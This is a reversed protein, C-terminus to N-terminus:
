QMVEFDISQAVTRYKDKALKDTVVIQMAYEGPEMKSGLQLQGGTMVSKLDPSQQPEIPKPKGAYIQKGDHFLFLQTELQPRKTAADEQSNLIQLAYELRRGPRFIRVAPSGLSEIETEEKQAQESLAPAPKAQEPTGQTAAAAAPRSARVVLGSLTLRGKSLDPVEIFQSASGIKETAADRVATRLQYAGPKKVPHNVTYVFGHELADRYM